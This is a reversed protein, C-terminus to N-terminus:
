TVKPMPIRLLKLEQHSAMCSECLETLVPKKVREIGIVRKADAIM